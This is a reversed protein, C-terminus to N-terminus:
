NIFGVFTPIKFIKEKDKIGFGHQKPEEVRSFLARIKKSQGSALNNQCFRVM